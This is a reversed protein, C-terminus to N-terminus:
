AVRCEFLSSPIELLPKDPNMTTSLKQKLALMDQSIKRAVIKAYIQTTRISKHGLLASVTELPVGNALTITTAFTHRATHTTLNKKINCIETIEKLYANFKQNSKIPLLTGNLQCLPHNRYREIIEKAIPLLPVNERCWTKERNKMIWDEGDFFKTVNEPRLLQADKYAYGTFVMFLYCDRIEALREVPLYKKYLLMIEQEDLIDREPNFYSCKYGSIPSKLLWNREVATKLVQKSNKIYKMATNDELGQELTMFDLFDEAFAYVIQDLAIDNLRYEFKLFDSIKSRTTRWRSLTGKALKEKEVKKEMREIMFDVTQLLTKSAEPKRKDQYSAKVMEASVYDHKAALLDYHQRLKAKVRDITSNIQQAESGGGTAIGAEQNWMDPNVKHGLSMEARKSDVTLRVTIPVKGDKSTKSRELLLLMSLKENVKM